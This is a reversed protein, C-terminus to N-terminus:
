MEVHVKMHAGSAAASFADPTESFRYSATVIDVAPVRRSALLQLAAPFDHNYRFTGIWELERAMILNAPVTIPRAITGIQVLRGGKRAAGIGASIAAENGSADFVIDYGGRPEERSVDLIETETPDVAVDAGSNLAFERRAAVPDSMTIRGAGLARAVMTVLQGITGGGSVLINANDVPRARRVAHVAVALPELVTAEADSVSDPLVYTNRASVPVLERFGGDIHPYTAATGFFRMNDCLNYRGELCFSCTGCPVSPEVGVRDGVARDAVDAGVAEITGIFEHGPVFPEKPVFIGCQFHKYYEIDSGCIGVRAVRVLVEDSAPQPVARESKEIQEAGTLVYAEIGM